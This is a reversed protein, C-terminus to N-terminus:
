EGLEIKKQQIFEDLPVTAETKSKYLKELENRALGPEPGEGGIAVSRAFADLAKERKETFDQILPAAAMELKEKEAKNEESECSVATVQAELEMRRATNEDTSCNSEANCGEIFAKLQEFAMQGADNCAMVFLRLKEQAAIALENAARVQYYYCIGLYYQAAADKPTMKVLDGYATACNVYDKKTLFRSAVIKQNQISIATRVPQWQDDPIAAPKDLKLVREGYSMFEDLIPEQAEASDPLPPITTALTLLANLNNPDLALIKKAYGLTKELSKIESGAITMGEGYFAVRKDAPTRPVLKDIRDITELAKPWNKEQKYSLFLILFVNDRYMSEIFEKRSDALFTESLEIKRPAPTATDYIPRYATIDPSEAPQQAAQRAWGPVAATSVLLVAIVFGITTRM